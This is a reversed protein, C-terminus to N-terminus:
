SRSNNLLLPSRSDNWTRDTKAAAIKPMKEYKVLKKENSAMLKEKKIKIPMGFTQEM